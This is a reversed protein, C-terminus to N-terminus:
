HQFKSAPAQQYPQYPDPYAAPPPQQPQAYGDYAAPPQQPPQGYYASYDYPAGYGPAMPPYGVPAPPAGWGGDAGYGYGGPFFANLM